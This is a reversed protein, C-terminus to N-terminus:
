EQRLVDEYVRRLKSVVTEADLGLELIRKRGKTRGNERSFELALEIKEAVNEPEFSTLFHGPENGLLWEVDGVKTSVVPCNCAMAEKIINPSGEWLSTVLLIDAQLIELLIESHSRNFVVKLEANISRMAQQALPYNKEERSPDAAFLITKKQSIIISSNNAPINRKELRNIKKIDVGNPIILAKRIGTDELMQKSKVITKTWCFRHFFRVLLTSIGSLKTDSGMLSVVHPRKQSSILAMSTIMSSLSYHSHIIRKPHNKIFKFLPFINKLYGTFGKGKILFFDIEAGSDILSDAQNQVVAGLKGTKNGSAVFLVKM